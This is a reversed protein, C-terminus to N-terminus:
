ALSIETGGNTRSVNAAELCRVVESMESYTLHPATSRFFQGITAALPDMRVDLTLVPGDDRRVTFPADRKLVGEVRATRGDRWRATLIETQPTVDVRVSVARPGMLQYMLEVGHVGYWFWGVNAPEFWLPCSVVAHQTRGGSEVADRVASASFWKVYHREGARFIREADAFTTTLPKNIFTPRSRPAVREFLDAHTRGDMALLLLADCEDAVAEPTELIAVSLKDRLEATYGAVRGISLPADPSGGPWAAVVRGWRTDRENFYRTLEPAHSTDLGLIGIRRIGDNLAVM